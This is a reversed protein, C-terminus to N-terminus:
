AVASAWEPSEEYMLTELLNDTEQQFFECDEKSFLSRWPMPPAAHRPMVATSEPRFAALRGLPRLLPHRVQKPLTISTQLPECLHDSLTGITLAPQEILEEMKVCYTNDRFAWQRVHEAWVRPRSKGFVTQRIFASFPVRAEAEFDQMFTHLSRMVERGDRYVYLHLSRRNIWDIFERPVSKGPAQLPIQEFSPFAHTKVLPRNSRSLIRGVREAPLPADGGVVHDLNLYLRDNPEGWWKWSRCARLNLRLTDILLHTGSRPHSAM